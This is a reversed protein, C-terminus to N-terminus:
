SAAELAPTCDNVDPGDPAAEGEDEDPDQVDFSLLPHVWPTDAHQLAGACASTLVKDKLKHWGRFEEEGVFPQALELRKMKPLMGIFATDPTWFERLVADSGGCKRALADHVPIRWGDVNASRLLSVGALIAACATKSEESLDCYAEFAEVPDVIAMFPERALGALLGDWQDAVDQGKMWNRVLEVPEDDRSTWDSQISRTGCDVDRSSTLAQRLLSWTLFDRPATAAPGGHSATSVMVARLLMRRLSRTIQLGDATLGHEDKVAARAEQGYIGASHIAAAGQPKMPDGAHAASRNDSDKEAERKAKRSAWWWTLEPQGQYGVKLVAVIDDQGAKRPLYVRWDATGSKIERPHLQLSHDTGSGQAPPEAAFRLDANQCAARAADRHAALHREVLERLIDEDVVRGREPGDAFLDLEFRGGAARYEVDGVFALLRENEQDGVKMLTRIKAADQQWRPLERFAAWASLQLSQTETAAFARAEEIGIEGASYAAFIEPALHGLRLQRRVWTKTQGLEAAIRDENMGLAHARAIAASVEDGRLDRRLGELNEALSLLVIEGDTLDRCEAEIAFDTPLQGEGIALCIARYRRGGALVGFQAKGAWDPNGKAPHILLRQLLGQEVISASLAGVAATDEENYRVNLPSIALQDHTYTTM